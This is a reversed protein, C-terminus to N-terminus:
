AGPSKAATLSPHSHSLRDAFTRGSLGYGHLHMPGPAALYHSVFPDSDGSHLDWAANYVRREEATTRLDQRLHEAWTAVMYELRFKGPHELSEDLRCHFAGNRRCTAQVELMLRRFEDRRDSEIFYEITVTVPGAEHAPVV